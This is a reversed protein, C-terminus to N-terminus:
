GEISPCRVEFYGMEGTANNLGWLMANLRPTGGGAFGATHFNNRMTTRATLGAAPVPLYSMISFRNGFQNQLSFELREFNQLGVFNVEMMQAFSAPDGSTIARGAATIEFTVAQSNYSASPKIRLWPRQNPDGVDAARITLVGGHAGAGYAGIAWNTPLAGTFGGTVAVSGTMAPNTVWQPFAPYVHAPDTILPASPYGQNALYATLGAQAGVATTYTGLPGWHYGDPQFMSAIGSGAGDTTLSHPELFSVRGSSDAAIISRIQDNLTNRPYGPASPNGGVISTVIPPMSVWLVYQAKTKAKAILSNISAITGSDVSSVPGAGRWGNTGGMIIILGLGSIGSCGPHGGADLYNNNFENDMDGLSRGSVGSNAVIDLPAGMLGNAWYWFTSRFADETLSDGYLLTKNSMGAAPPRILSVSATVSQPNGTITAGACTLTLAQTGAVATISLAQTAGAAISAGSSPSIAWGAPVNISWAGSASGGSNVISAATAVGVSVASPASFALQPLTVVSVSLPRAARTIVPSITFDVTRGAGPAGWTSSGTVSTQGTSITSTAPGTAGDSRAWTVTYNQDAAVDLTVTDVHAVAVTASSSGSLTALTPAPPPPPPAPNVTVALTNSILGGPATVCISKSGAAAWTAAFAKNLDGVDWTVGPPAFVATGTVNEPTGALPLTGPNALLVGFNLPTGAVTTLGGLASLTITAPLAIGSVVISAPSGAANGGVVTLVLTYTGAIATNLALAQTAGPALTGSSPTITLGSGTAIAWTAPVTGINRVQAAAPTGATMTSPVNELEVLPSPAPSPAPAPVSGAQMPLSSVTYQIDRPIM